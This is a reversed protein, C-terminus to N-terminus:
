NIAAQDHGGEEGRRLLAQRSGAGSESDGSGSARDPGDAAAAAAAAVAAPPEVPQVVVVEVQGGSGASAVSYRFEWGHAAAGHRGAADVAVVAGIYTPVRRAIRRVADEAAETPSMGRRMSEVVQPPHMSPFPLLIPAHIRTAPHMGSPLQCRTGSSAQLQSPASCHVVFLLRWLWLMHLLQHRTYRM